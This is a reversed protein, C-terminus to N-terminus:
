CCMQHLVVCRGFAPQLPAPDHALAGNQPPCTKCPIRTDVTVDHWACDKYMQTHTHTHTHAHAHTHTHTHTYAHIHTHTHM